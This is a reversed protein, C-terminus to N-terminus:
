PKNRLLDTGAGTYGRESEHVTNRSGSVADAILSAMVGGDLPVTMTSVLTLVANNSTISQDEANPTKQMKLGKTRYPLLADSASPKRLMGALSGLDTNQLAYEQILKIVKGVGPNESEPIGACFDKRARRLDMLDQMLKAIEESSHGPDKIGNCLREDLSDIIATRLGKQSGSDTGSAQKILRFNSEGPLHVESPYFNFGGSWRSCMISKSETNFSYATVRGHDDLLHVSMLNDKVTLMVGNGKVIPNNM